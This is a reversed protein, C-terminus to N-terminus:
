DAAAYVLQGPTFDSTWLANVGTATQYTSNTITSGRQTWNTGSNATTWLSIQDGNLNVRVGDTAGIATAAIRSTATHTAVSYLDINWQAGTYVLKATWYNGAAFDSIRPLLWMQSGVVPSAPLTYFEDLRMNASPATLQANLTITKVSMADFDVYNPSSSILSWLDVVASAARNIFTYGQWDTSSTGTFVRQGGGSVLPASAGNGRGVGATQYFAGVSLVDQRAAPNNTTSRAVRLVRTGQYPSSTEKSLAADNIGTWASTDAGEMDGDALVNSLSQAPTELTLGTQNSYGESGGPDVTVVLRLALGFDADVPTYNQNTALAIDAWAGATYRQWQYTYSSPTPLWTGDDGAIEVGIVPAASEIVPAVTNVPVGGAGPGVGPGSNEKLNIGGRFSLM